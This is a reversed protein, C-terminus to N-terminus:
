IVYRFESNGVSRIAATDGLRIRHNQRNLYWRYFLVGCIALIASGGEVGVAMPYRNAQSAPFLYGGVVNGINGVMNVSAISAALKPPPSPVSSGIWALNINSASTVGSIMLISAIIRAPVALTAGMIALGVICVSLNVVIHWTREKQRDAHWCTVLVICFGTLYPISLMAYTIKREFGLTAMITPFFNTFSACLTILLHNVMMAWVKVDRIMLKFGQAMTTDPGANGGADSIMRYQAVIAEKETLWRTNHPYNPLTFVFALAFAVTLAGEIIFLWRWSSLGAVDVMRETIGIAMLGGFSGSLMSGGFLLAVRLSLENPKYWSSCLFVAGPFFPAECFGLIFRVAILGGYSHVAATAGSVVGWVAMAFPLYLSPRLKSLFLNSPVQVLLYGVFLISIATAFQVSSLNLEESIGALKAIPLANRDIYNLIYMIMLSPFLRLDLKLKLRKEVAIAEDRPMRLYEDRIRATADDLFAGEAVAVEGDKESANDNTVTPKALM